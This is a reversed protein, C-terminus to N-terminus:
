SSRAQEDALDLIDAKLDTVREVGPALLPDGLDLQGVVALM